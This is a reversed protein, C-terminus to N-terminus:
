QICDIGLNPPHENAALLARGFGGGGAGQGRQERLLRRDGVTREPAVRTARSVPTVVASRAAFSVDVREDAMNRQDLKRHTRGLIADYTRQVDLVRDFLSRPAEVWPHERRGVAPDQVDVL